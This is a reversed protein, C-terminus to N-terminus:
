SLDVAVTLITLIALPIIFWVSVAFTATVLTAIVFFPTTSM